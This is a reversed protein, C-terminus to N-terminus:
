SCDKLLEIIKKHHEKNTSALVKGDSNLNLKNGKWDTIQGGVENILPVQAIYDWPKMSAEIILDIKGSILLGYGYCDTGFVPFMTNSYIKKIINQQKEGFMLFSTSSVIQQDFNKNNKIYSCVNNNLKVGLKKGGYWRQNLIPIDIVGIVPEQNHLCCLLTGFLPKGSIFSHTGDLPDIVWVFENNEKTKGFEEGIVGHEPYKKKLNERFKIEIEKDVNTVHSGDTKKVINFNNFYYKRLIKGSKDTFKNAFNLLELYNRSM